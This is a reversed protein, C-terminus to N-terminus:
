DRDTYSAKLKIKARCGRYVTRFAILYDYAICKDKKSALQSPRNGRLIHGAFKTNEDEKEFFLSLQFGDNKLTIEDKFTFSTAKQDNVLIQCGINEVFFKLEFEDERVEEPFIFEMEFGKPLVKSFFEGEFHQCTFSNILNNNGFALYFLHMGAKAKDIKEAKERSIFCYNKDKLSLWRGGEKEFTLLIPKEEEEIPRVNLIPKILSSALIEPDNPDITKEEKLLSLFFLDSLHLDQRYKNQFINDVPGFYSLLHKHFFNFTENWISRSFAKKNELDYVQLSLSVDKLGEKSYLFSKNFKKSFYLPKEEISNKLVEFRFLSSAPFYKKKKESFFILRRKAKVIKKRLEVSLVKKFEKAIWYLVNLIDITKLYSHDLPYEHLYCPFSGEKTQFSLCRELIKEGMEINDIEKTRLLALSFTLNEFIPITYHQTTDKEHFLHLLGTQPSFREKGLFLAAKSLYNSM